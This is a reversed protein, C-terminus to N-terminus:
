AAMAEPAEDDLAHEICANIHAIAQAMTEANVEPLVLVNASTTDLDLKQLLTVGDGFAVVPRKALFFTNTFRKSHANTLLKEVARAGNPIILADFDSGLSTELKADVPYSIGWGAGAWTMLLANEPSITKATLGSSVLGRGIGAMDREGAGNAALVALTLKVGTM